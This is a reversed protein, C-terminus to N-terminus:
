PQHILNAWDDQVYKRIRKSWIQNQGHEYAARSYQKYTDEAETLELIGKALGAPYDIHNGIGIKIGTGPIVQHTMGQHDLTVVPLGTAMAEFIQMPCSDKLSPFLFVHSQKYYGVLVDHPVNGLFTVERDLNYKGVLNMAKQKMIGEGAVLLRYTRGRTATQTLRQFADIALTLGKRPLMRGVWIVTVVDSNLTRIPFEMEFYDSLGADYMRSTSHPRYKDAFEQVKSNSVFIHKANRISKKVTPNVSGLLASFNEKVWEPFYYKGFYKRLSRHVPAAGGMPGMLVPVPIKYLPTGLKISSYTVHHAFDYAAWEQPKIKKIYNRSRYLWLYYHLYAGFFPIKLLSLGFKSDFFRFSINCQHSATYEKIKDTFMGSTLVLM